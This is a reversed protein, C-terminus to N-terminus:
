QQYHEAKQATEVIISLATVAAAVTAAEASAKLSRTEAPTTRVEESKTTLKMVVAQHAQLNAVIV